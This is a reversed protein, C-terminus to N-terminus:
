RRGRLITAHVAVSGLTELVDVAPDTRVAIAPLPNAAPRMDPRAFGSVHVSDLM